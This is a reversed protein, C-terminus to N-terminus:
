SPALQSLFDQDGSDLIGSGFDQNLGSGVAGSNNIPIGNDFSSPASLSPLGPLSPLGNSSAPASGAQLNGTGGAPSSGNATSGRLLSLYAPLEGRVTIFVIFAILIMAFIVNSQQV